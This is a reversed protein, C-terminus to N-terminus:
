FNFEIGAVTQIIEVEIQQMTPILTLILRIKYKGNAVDTANNVQLDDDTVGPANQDGQWEYTYFFENLLSDLFPKVTIYLNNWTQPTNPEEIFEEITPKLAKTFNILGRVIHLFKNQDDTTQSTFNGWLMNKGDRNIVMNIQKKALEKFDELKGPTGYNNVIGIIGDILGKRPGAFSTYPSFDQDTTNAAILVDAMESFNSLNNEIDYLKIGGGFFAAFKTNINTGRASIYSDKDTNGNSLHAFYMLDKRAAVYAAGAEHLGSLDENMEPACIQLSDDFDDFAHLGYGNASTGVWDTLAPATGETGGEFTQTVELPKLNTASSTDEYTVGVLVSRTVVEQLYTSATNLGAVVKLNEYVESILTNTKSSITLNFYDDDGNSSESITFILNNYEAGQNKAALVFLDDGSESIVKATGATVTDGAQTTGGTVTFSSTADDLSKGFVLITRTNTDSPDLIADEIISLAKLATVIAAMTTDHDTDFAVDGLDDGNITLDVSNDTILDADFVIKLGDSIYAKTGAASHNTVRCVRLKGGAELVKKCLTPFQYDGSEGGFLTVFQKWTNIIKSPDDIPGMLTRGLVFSIGNLPQSVQQTLSRTRFNVEALEPM